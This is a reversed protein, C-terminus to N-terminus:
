SNGKCMLIYQGASLTNTSDAVLALGVVQGVYNALTSGLAIGDVAGSAGPIIAEGAAVGSSVTTIDVLGLGQTQVRLFDGAAATTELAIGVPITDADGQMVSVGDDYAGSADAGVAHRVLNGKTIAEGCRFYKVERQPDATAGYHSGLNLIDAM